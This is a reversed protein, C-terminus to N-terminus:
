AATETHEDVQAQIGRRVIETMTTGEAKAVTRLDDLMPPALKVNLRAPGDEHLRPRSM